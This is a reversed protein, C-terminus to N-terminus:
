DREPYRLSFIVSAAIFIIRNPNQMTCLCVCVCVSSKSVPRDGSGSYPQSYIASYYMHINYVYDVIELRHILIETMYADRHVCERKRVGVCVWGRVCVCVGCVCVCV